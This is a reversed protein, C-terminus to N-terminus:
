REERAREMGARLTRVRSKEEMLDFGRRRTEQGPESGERGEM